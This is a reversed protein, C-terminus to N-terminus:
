GTGAAADSRRPGGGHVAAGALAVRNGRCGAVGDGVDLHVADGDPCDGAVGEGGYGGVM